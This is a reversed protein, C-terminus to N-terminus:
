AAHAQPLEVVNQTEPQALTVRKAMEVSHQDESTGMFACPRM